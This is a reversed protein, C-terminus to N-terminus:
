RGPMMSHDMGEMMHGEMMMDDQYGWSKLWGKMMEIEKTQAQIIDTGLKKLEAHKANEPILKAMDVAGQHHVIMMEVFAKDFADGSLGDLGKTMEDMTMQSHGKMEKSEEDEKGYQEGEENDQYRNMERHMGRAGTDQGVNYGIFGALMIAIVAIGTVIVLQNNPTIKNIGQPQQEEM